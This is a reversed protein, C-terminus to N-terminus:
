RHRPSQHPKGGIRSSGRWGDVIRVMRDPCAVSHQVRRRERRRVRRLAENRLRGRQFIEQLIGDEDNQSFARQGFRILRLPELARPSSQLRDSYEALAIRHLADLAPSVIKSSSINAPTLAWAAIEGMSALHDADPAQAPEIAALVIFVPNAYFPKLRELAAKLFARDINKYDGKHIALADVYKAEAASAGYCDVRLAIGSQMELPAAIMTAGSARLAEAASTWYQDM